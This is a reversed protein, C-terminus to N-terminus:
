LKSIINRILRTFKEQAQSATEFVEEHSLPQKLVGAAMNTICSIGLIKLGAHRATIVEPVTSMGVADAGLTRMMRIEAPTEYSPGTTALYIGRRLDINEERAAQLAIQQYEPTYATSMDPFRLGFDDQNKGILPNTGLMNIHDQILMLNGAQFNFNIGGAANTVILSHVGMKAMTRIPFIVQEMAYGEYYHFRGSMAIINKGSVQGLVLKGAHGQVTSIPFNAIESYPIEIRNELQKDFDGLGSGLVIGITVPMDSKQRICNVSEQIKQM